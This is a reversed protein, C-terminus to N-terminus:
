RRPHQNAWTRLTDALARLADKGSLGACAASLVSGLDGAAQQGIAGRLDNLDAVHRYVGPPAIELARGLKTITVAQLGIDDALEAAREIVTRRSLREAM